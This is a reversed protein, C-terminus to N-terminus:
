KDNEKERSKRGLDWKGGKQKRNERYDIERETHM